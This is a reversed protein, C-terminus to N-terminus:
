RRSRRGHGDSSVSFTSTLYDGELTIKATHSGDTVTLTGSSTTGSYSAKSTGSVFSIDGLDLSTTGTTSFGSIAGTYTQSHALELTGSAGTFAVREFFTSTFDGTGGAITVSGAGTVAGEVTLTGANVALTGTNTVASNVILGGAGTSEILGANTIAAM